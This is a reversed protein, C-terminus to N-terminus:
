QVVVTVANSYVSESGSSNYATVAIYYTGPALGSVDLTYTTNVNGTDIFQAYPGRTTGYYVKYGALDTLHTGDVNTTPAIWTLTVSHTAVPPTSDAGGGGGGCASLLLLGFLLLWSIRTTGKFMKM